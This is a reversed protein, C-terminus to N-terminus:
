YFIHEYSFDKLFVEVSILEPWGGDEEERLRHHGATMSGWARRRLRTPSYNIRCVNTSVVSIVAAQDRFISSM